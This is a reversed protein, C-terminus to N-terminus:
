PEVKPDKAESLSLARDLNARASQNQPDIELAETFYRIAEDLRGLLFLANGLDNALAVRDAGPQAMALKFYPIAKELM